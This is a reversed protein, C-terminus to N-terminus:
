RWDGSRWTHRDVAQCRFREGQHSQRHQAGFLEGIRKAVQLDGLSKMGREGVDLNWLHIIGRCTRKQEVFEQLLRNVDEHREPAVTAASGGLSFAEAPTVLLCYSGRQELLKALNKGLGQRDAFIIWGDKPSVQSAKPESSKPETANLERLAKEIWEVHYLWNDITSVSVSGTVQEVSRALFGKIEGFAQGDADYLTIDGRMESSSDVHVRAHAWLESVSGVDLRLQEISIPLRIGTQAGEVGSQRFAKTATIFAQLCADILSPHVRYSAIDKACGPPLIIRALAEGPKSWVDQLGQFCAGFPVRMEAFRDYCSARELRGGILGQIAEFDAHEAIRFSPLLRLQGSAHESTVGVGDVDSFTVVRFESRECNLSVQVNKFEKDSLFLAKKFELRDISCASQGTLKGLAALAMEIYGAAPFVVNGQIEHDALYPNVETDLKVEWYPEATPLRQGLLPHDVRDLRMQEVRPPEVWFREKKWTYPPLSVFNGAPYLLEWNIRFDM